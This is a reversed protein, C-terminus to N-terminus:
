VLEQIIRVFESHQQGNSALTPAGHQHKSELDYVLPKGDFFTFRGGAEELIIQPAATDWYHVKHHNVYLDAQQSAIYGVKIGVSNVAPIWPSPLRAKIKKEFSEPFGTSTVLPMEAWERRASVHLRERKGQSVYYAGDGRLAEYLCDYWPDMVVGAFPKRDQLLGIMVSFGAVGRVYAKTGDMPDVLWVFRSQPDGQMGSEETLVAHDPFHKRLGARIIRDAEFDANTVISHDAKREQILPHQRLEM